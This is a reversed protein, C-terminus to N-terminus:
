ALSIDPCPLPSFSSSSLSLGERERKERERERRFSHFSFLLFFFLLGKKKQSQVSFAHCFLPSTKRPGFRSSMERHTNIHPVMDMQEGYDM